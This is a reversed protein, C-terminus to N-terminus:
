SLGGPFYRVNKRKSILEAKYLLRDMVDAPIVPKGGNYGPEGQATLPHGDADHTFLLYMEGNGLVISRRYRFGFARLQPEYEEASFLRKSIM